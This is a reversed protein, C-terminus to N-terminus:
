VLIITFNFRKERLHSSSYLMFDGRAVNTYRINSPGVYFNNRIAHRIIMAFIINEDCVATNKCWDKSYPFM